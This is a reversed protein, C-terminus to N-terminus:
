SDADNPSHPNRTRLLEVDREARAGVCTGKKGHKHQPCMPSSKALSTWDTDIM